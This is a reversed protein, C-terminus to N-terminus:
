GALVAIPMHAVYAAARQQPTLDFRTRLQGGFAAVRHALVLIM